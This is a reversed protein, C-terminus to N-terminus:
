RWRWPQERECLASAIVAAYPNRLVLGHTASPNEQIGFPGIRFVYARDEFYFHPIGEIPSGAIPDTRNQYMRVDIALGRLALRYPLNGLRGNSTDLTAGRAVPQDTPTDLIYAKELESFVPDDMGEAGEAIEALAEIVLAGGKSHGVIKIDKADKEKLFDRLAGAASRLDGKTFSGRDHADGPWLFYYVPEDQPM